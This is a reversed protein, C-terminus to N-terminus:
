ENDKIFKNLVESLRKADNATVHFVTLKDEAPHMWDTSSVRIEALNANDHTVDIETFDSGELKITIKTM